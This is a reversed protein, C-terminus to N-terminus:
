PEKNVKEVRRHARGPVVVTEVVARVDVSGPRLANKAELLLCDRIEKKPFKRASLVLHCGGARETIRAALAAVPVAIGGPCHTPQPDSGQGLVLLTPVSPGAFRAGVRVEDKSDPALVGTAAPMPGACSFEPDHDLGLTRIGALRIELGIRGLVDLEDCGCLSIAGDRVVGQIYLLGTWVL